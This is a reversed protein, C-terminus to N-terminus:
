GPIQSLLRTEIQALEQVMAATASKTMTGTRGQYEGWYAMGKSPIIKPLVRFPM